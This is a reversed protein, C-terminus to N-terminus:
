ERPFRLPEIISEVKCKVFSLGLSPGHALVNGGANVPSQVKGPRRPTSDKLFQWTAYGEEM